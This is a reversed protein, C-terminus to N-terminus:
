SETGARLYPGFHWTFKRGDREPKLQNRLQLQEREQLLVQERLGNEVGFVLKEIAEPQDGTPKFDSVLKFDM